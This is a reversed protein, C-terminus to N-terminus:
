WPGYRRAPPGPLTVSWALRVAQDMLILAGGATRLRDNSYNLSASPESTFSAGNPFRDRRCRDSSTLRGSHSGPTMDYRDRRGQPIDASVRMRLAERVATRSVGFREQPAAVDLDDDPSPQGSVISTGLSVVVRDHAGTRVYQKVM